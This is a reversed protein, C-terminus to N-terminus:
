LPTAEQLIYPGIYKDLGSDTVLDIPMELEEELDLKCGIFKLGLPKTLTVLLDVDSDEDAEGRAISGFVRVNTIGYEGTIRLIDNKHKARLEELTM